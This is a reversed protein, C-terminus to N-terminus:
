TTKSKSAARVECKKKRKEWILRIKKGYDRKKAQSVRDRALGSGRCNEITGGRGESGKKDKKGARPV